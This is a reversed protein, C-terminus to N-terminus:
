PTLRPLAKPMPMREPTTSGIPASSVMSSVLRTVGASGYM